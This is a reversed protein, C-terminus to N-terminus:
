ANPKKAPKKAPKKEAPKKAAPKKAPTTEGAGPQESFPVPAFEDLDLEDLLEKETARKNLEEHLDFGFAAGYSERSLNGSNYLEILGDVFASAAMMNIPKFQVDPNGGLKNEVVITDIIRSVIPFISERIREMTNLPSITAIEADSTQTRETEGTVLIRPFGLAISIDQNVNKYKNDDLLTTSDPFVWSIDLTHNGFLQFIREMDKSSSTERWKMKQKLVELQDENDETLPYDDNGIRVLMIATIVRSALSYDMRRLNRKHKLSELAPFLYPLPYAEATITRAQVVLPNELLINFEGKMVKRVFEPMAKKIEKYLAKDEDGNPYKGKNQIFFRLDDPVEVFYSKKGGIMPDKIIISAPDRIWMDTPLMLSEFRKIGMEHLKSKSVKEFTIEPVVLGSLMFELAVSRLYILLDVRIADLISKISKRAEGERVIIDNIALDIVKNIVTSVFPDRKYFYRCSAVIKKWEKATFDLKDVDQPSWPAPTKSYPQLISYQHSASALRTLEGDQVVIEAKAEKEDNAM